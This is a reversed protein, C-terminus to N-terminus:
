NEQSAKMHAYEELLKDGMLKVTAPDMPFEFCINGTRGDEITLFAMSHDRLGTIHILHDQMDEDLERDVHELIARLDYQVSMMAALVLPQKNGSARVLEIGHHLANVYRVIHEHLTIRSPLEPKHQLADRIFELAQDEPLEPM